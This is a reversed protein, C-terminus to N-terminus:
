AAAEECFAALDLTGADAQVDLAACEAAGIARFRVTDGPALLAPTTNRAPDFLSLPTRGILRWGGPSAFPYIACMSGAIAISRAPVETRPTALRPVQLAEPLGGMYPFGPLFGITYVTYRAGLFSEVVAAVSVGRLQAVAGLDPACEGEFCAPLTWRRGSVPAAAAGAALGPLAAELAEVDTEGPDFYLTLAAFSAIWEGVGHLLPTGRLAELQHALGMVQRHIQPDARTGFVVTLASDSLARVTIERATAPQLAAM